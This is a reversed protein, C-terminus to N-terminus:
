ANGPHSQPYLHHGTNERATGRARPAEPLAPDAARDQGLRGTGSRDLITEPGAGPPTSRHDAPRAM